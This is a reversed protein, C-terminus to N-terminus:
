QKVNGHEEERNWDKIHKNYETKPDFLTFVSIQDVTITDDLSEELMDKEQSIYVEHDFLMLTSWIPAQCSYAVQAVRQCFDIFDQSDVTDKKTCRVNVM